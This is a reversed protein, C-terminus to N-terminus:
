YKKPPHFRPITKFLFLFQSLFIIFLKFFIFLLTAKQHNNALFNLICLLVLLNVVYIQKQYLKCNWGNRYLFIIINIPNWRRTMWAMILKLDGTAQFYGKSPMILQLSFLFHGRKMWSSLPQKWGLLSPNCFWQALSLCHQYRTSVLLKSIFHLNQLNHSTVQSRITLWLTLIRM